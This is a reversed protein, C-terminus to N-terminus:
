FQKTNTLDLTRFKSLMGYITVESEKYKRDTTGPLYLFIGQYRVEV